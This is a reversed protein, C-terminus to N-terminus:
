PEIAGCVLNLVLRGQGIHDATAMQKAAILPHFLSVHVTCFVNLRRTAALLGCAWSISEFTESNIRSEGAYGKWRAIPVMGEIGVEDALQALRLNNEWSAVWPNPISAYTRGNSCNAGFLALKLANGQVLAANRPPM